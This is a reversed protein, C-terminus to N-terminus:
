VLFIVIEFLSNVPAQNVNCEYSYIPVIVPQQCEHERVRVEEPTPPRHICDEVSM